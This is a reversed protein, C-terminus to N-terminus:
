VVVFPTIHSNIRESEEMTSVFAEAKERTSFVGLTETAEWLNVTVIFVTM